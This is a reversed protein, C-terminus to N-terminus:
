ASDAITQHFRQTQPSKSEQIYIIYIKWAEKKHEELVSKLKPSNSVSYKECFYQHLENIWSTDEPMPFSALWNEWTPDAKITKLKTTDFYNYTM